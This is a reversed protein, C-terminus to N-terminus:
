PNASETRAVAAIARHDGMRASCRQRKKVGVKARTTATGTAAWTAHAGIM